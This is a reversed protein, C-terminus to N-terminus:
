KICVMTLKKGKKRSAKSKSVEPMLPEESIRMVPNNFAHEHCKMQSGSGIQDSKGTTANLVFNNDENTIV